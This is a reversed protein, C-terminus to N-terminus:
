KTTMINIIATCCNELKIGTNNMAFANNEIRNLFDLTDYKSFFVSNDPGSCLCTYKDIARCVNKVLTGQEREGANKFREKDLLFISVDVTYNNM